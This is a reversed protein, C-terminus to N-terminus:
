RSRLQTFRRGLFHGGRGEDDRAPRPNLEKGAATMFQQENPFERAPYLVRNSETVPLVRQATM